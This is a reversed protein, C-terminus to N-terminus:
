PTNLAPSSQAGGSPAAKGGNSSAGGNQVAPQLGAPAGAPNSAAKPNANDAGGCGAVAILVTAALSLLPRKM